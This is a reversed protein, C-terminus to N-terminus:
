FSKVLEMSWTRGAFLPGHVSASFGFQGTALPPEKDTLNVVGLRISSRRLWQPSGTGFRYSASGNFTVVDHVRYRYLYNGGDFQKSLYSPAGLAAYTAATTTGTADAFSGIYYGSLGATWGSKRWTVGTTGRWRTTGDVDMREIFLSPAGTVNRIQYTKIIYSWDANLSIRGIPFKPLTYNLGLDWGAAYGKALNQYAATRSIIQGVVAAQASAPRTANYAAFTAIDAATPAFRAVGVDGKYAATGSGLDVQAITKGSALQAQTYANLLAADSNLIQSTTYSGIVNSQEILWYDATLTLGKLKPVDLVLGASKGRSNVPLLNKNGLSYQRQVYSGENTIPNRYVDTVGPASDVTYQTPAYLTPLNPATFGENYSGRIMLATFPRWNLGVKPKTANGFDSYREYRVSGTLELSRLLPVNHKAEFLPLAVETYLSAVNRSGGSDPKPSALLFDNDEPNLGLPNGVPNTGAYPARRDSFYEKRYEGGLAGSATRGLLSFLTGSARFDLSGTASFGDRRWLQNFTSLVSRPSAFPQDPVVVGNLVKFTYGFPNYATADTRQLAAAFASERM